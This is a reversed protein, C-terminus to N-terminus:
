VAHLLSPLVDEPRLARQTHMAVLPLEVELAHVVGELQRRAGVVTDVDLGAGVALDHEDAAVEVVVGDLLHAGGGRSRAGRVKKLRAACTM